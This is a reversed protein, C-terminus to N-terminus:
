LKGSLSSITSFHLLESFEKRETSALELYATYISHQHILHERAQTIKQRLAFIERSLYILWLLFALIGPLYVISLLNEMNNLM